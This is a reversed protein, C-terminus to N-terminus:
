WTASDRQVYFQWANCGTLSAAFEGILGDAGNRRYAGQSDANLFGSVFGEIRDIANLHALLELPDAM